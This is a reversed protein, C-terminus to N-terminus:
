QPNATLIFIDQQSSMGTVPRYCIDAFGAEILWAELEFRDFGLWQDALQERVWEQEHRQLDAIVLVGAPALVRRAEKLLRQPQVAHHLVMNLLLCGAEGDNVPLSSMEGLRFEVGSIGQREVRNRAEELMASSQDIGIVRPSKQSLASLLNGTGVGVEVILDCEPIEDLFQELYAPTSLLDRTFTDWQRAHRNFFDLSRQRRQELAISVKKLDNERQPLSELAKELVPWLQSFLSSVGPLHYYAWTGQREVSIIGAETLIKLHRSVRSQGMGLIMTLEQVTFEGKILITILRLRTADALAKFLELM